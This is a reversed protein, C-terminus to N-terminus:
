PLSEYDDNFEKNFAKRELPPPALNIKEDLKNILEDRRWILDGRLSDMMRKDLPIKTFFLGDGSSLYVINNKKIEDIFENIDIINEYIEVIEKATDIIENENM